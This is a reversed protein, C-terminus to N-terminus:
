FMNRLHKALVSSMFDNTEEINYCIQSINYITFGLWGYPLECTVDKIKYAGYNEHFGAM